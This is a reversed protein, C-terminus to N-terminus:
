ILDIDPASIVGAAPDEILARLARAPAHVIVHRQEPRM